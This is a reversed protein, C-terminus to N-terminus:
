VNTKRRNKLYMKVDKTVIDKKTKWAEKDWFSTALPHVEKSYKLNIDTLTKKEGRLAWSSGTTPSIMLKGYYQFRAYPSFFRIGKDTIEAQRYLMTTKAPVYDEMQKYFSENTFKRLDKDFLSRVKLLVSSHNFKISVDAM